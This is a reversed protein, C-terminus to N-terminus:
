GLSITFTSKLMNRANIEWLNRRWPGDYVCHQRASVKANAPKRTFRYQKRALYLLYYISLKEDNALWAYSPNGCRSISLASYAIARVDTRGNTRKDTQWMSPISWDLVTSTLIICNVGCPLGLYRLFPLLIHMRKWNIGLDIISVKSSRSRSRYTQIRESNRPIECIQSAFIASRIFITNDTNDAVDHLMYAPINSLM